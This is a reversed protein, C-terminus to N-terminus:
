KAPVGKVTCNAPINKTVVAGAGVITDSGVNCCPLITSNAGVYAGSGISVRGLLVANPAITSFDGVVCDHMINANVNLKVFKGIRANASVTVGHQVVAGEEIVASRSVYACPSILTQFKFGNEKYKYFLKKRISPSDPSIIVPIHGFEKYISSLEEDTGLYQGRGIDYKTEQNDIYGVIDYQCELCLDIMESFAGVLIVKNDDM